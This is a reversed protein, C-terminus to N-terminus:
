KFTMKFRDGSRRGLNIWSGRKPSPVVSGPSPMMGLVVKNGNRGKLSEMFEKATKQSESEKKQQLFTEPDISVLEKVQACAAALSEIRDDNTLSGRDRTIDAIQRMLKEDRAVSPDVVVRHMKFLPELTDIIRLEKQKNGSRQSEVNVAGAVKAIFPRLLKEFMGDGFNQEVIVRKIGHRRVCEAIKLLNTDTPGGRVGEVEAIFITGNLFKLVTWATEDLGQGAPDIFMLSMTFPQYDDKSWFIPGNLPPGTPRDIDQIPNTGWVVRAPGLNGHVPMVILDAPRLPYRDQDALSTDLMMQLQFVTPGMIAERDNLVSNDFREPYTPDGPKARGSTLDDLLRPALNWISKENTPDPYRAPWRRLSYNKALKNYISERNQPTGLYIIRGGPNLIAEFELCQHYLKDRAEVTESNNPTEVDDAIIVDVHTGTMMASIGYACISPDKNAVTRAGCDFRYAGDRDGQRPRLHHLCPLLELLQRAFGIFETARNQTGSVCLITTNPNKYLFWVALIATMWSKGFGRLASVMLRDPGHQLYEAVDYQLAAVDKGLAKMCLFVFNRFDDRLPDNSPATPKM